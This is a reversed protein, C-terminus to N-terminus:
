DKKEQYSNPIQLKFHFFLDTACIKFAWSATVSDSNILNLNENYAKSWFKSHDFSLTTQSFDFSIRTHKEPKYM